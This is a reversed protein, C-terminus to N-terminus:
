RERNKTRHVELIKFKREGRPTHVIIQDGVRAGIMAKGIPSQDSIKNRLPNAENSGVIDYEVEDNQQYDFVKLSSGVNGLDAQIESEDIIKANGIIQELESIRSMVKAQENKAEDYESNESLDGFSRADALHVKVEQLRTNKLFDLEEVLSKYGEETFLMQRNDM